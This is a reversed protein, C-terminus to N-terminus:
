PANRGYFYLGAQVAMVLLVGATIQNPRMRGVFSQWAVLGELATCSLWVFRAQSSGHGGRWAAVMGGIVVALATLAAILMLALFLAVLRGDIQVSEALLM